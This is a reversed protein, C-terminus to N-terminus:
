PRVFAKSPQQLRAIVQDGPDAGRDADVSDVGVLTRELGDAERQRRYRDAHNMAATMYGTTQTATMETGARIAELARAEAHCSTGLDLHAIVRAREQQVGRQVLVAAAAPDSRVFANADLEATNAEDSM